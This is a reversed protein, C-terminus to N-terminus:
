LRWVKLAQKAVEQSAVLFSTRDVPTAAEVRDRVWNRIHAFSKILKKSIAHEAVAQPLKALAQQRAGEELSDFILASFLGQFFANPVLRPLPHAGESLLWGNIKGYMGQAKTKHPGAVNMVENAIERLAACLMMIATLRQQGDFIEYESDSKKYFVFTGFFHPPRHSSTRKWKPTSNKDFYAVLIKEFDELLSQVNKTDRWAWPRQNLPVIFQRDNALVMSGLRTQTAELFDKPDAYPTSNM